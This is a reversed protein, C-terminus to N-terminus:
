FHYKFNTPPTQWYSRDDFYDKLILFAEYRMAETKNDSKFREELVINNDRGYLRINQYLKKMDGKKFLYNHQTQRRKLNNTSGIYRVVGDIRIQYVIYM